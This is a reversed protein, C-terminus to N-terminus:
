MSRFVFVGYRDAPTPEERYDFKLDDIWSSWDFYRAVHEPVDDLLGMDAALHRAFEDFDVWHGQYADRFFLLSPYDTEGDVIYDGSEVWACLAEREIGEEVQTLVNGWGAATAPDMEDRVPINEHDMVWLEEHDTERGHHLDNPTVDSADVADYWHGNLVGENYCPMCGIWARPTADRHTSRISM